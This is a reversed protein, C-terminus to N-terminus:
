ILMRFCFRMLFLPFLFIFDSDVRSKFAATREALVHGYNELILTWNGRGYWHNLSNVGECFSVYTANSAFVQSEHTRASSNRIMISSRPVVVTQNEAVVEKMRNADDSPNCTDSGGENQNEGSHMHNTENRTMDSSITAAMGLADPLPDEVAVHLETTSSKLAKQVKDVEPTLLLKCKNSAQHLEKRSDVAM